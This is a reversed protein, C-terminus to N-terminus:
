WGLLFGQLALTTQPIHMRMQMYIYICIYIYIDSTPPTLEGKPLGGRVPFDNQQTQAHTRATQKGPPFLAFTDNGSNERKGKPEGAKGKQWVTERKGRASPKGKILMFETHFWLSM